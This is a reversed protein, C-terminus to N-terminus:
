SSRGLGSAFPGKHAYYPGIIDGAARLVITTIISNSQYQVLGNTHIFLLAAPPKKPNWFAM